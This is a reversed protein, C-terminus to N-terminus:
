DVPWDSDQELEDSVGGDAIDADPIEATLDASTDCTNSDPEQVPGTDKKGVDAVVDQGADASATTESDGCGQGVAAATLSSVSAALFFFRKRM